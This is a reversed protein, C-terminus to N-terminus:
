VCFVCTCSFCVQAHVEAEVSRHPAAGCVAICVCVRVCLVCVYVCVCVCVCVCVRVCIVCRLTYKLRLLATFQPV